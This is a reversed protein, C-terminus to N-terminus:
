VVKTGKVTLNTLPTLIASRKPWMTKYFIVMEIFEPVHKPTEPTDMDLIGQIKMPQPEVEDRYLLFCLYEVQDKAWSSKDPNIQLGKDVSRKLVEKVDQMHIEFTGDGIIIIDDMYVFVKELDVMLKGMAEQFVDVSVIIGMHLINYCYLGWPLYIVCREKVKKDLLISYYGMILDITTAHKIKGISPIIDHM